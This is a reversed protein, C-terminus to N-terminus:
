RQFSLWKRCALGRSVEFRSIKQPTDWPDIKPGSRKLIYTFSKHIDLNNSGKINPSSIFRKKECLFM